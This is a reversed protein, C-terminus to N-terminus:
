PWLRGVNRGPERAGPGPGTTCGADLVTLLTFLFSFIRFVEVSCNWTPPEVTERHPEGVRVAGSEEGEFTLPLASVHHLTGSACFLLGGSAVDWGPWGGGEVARMPADRHVTLVSPALDPCVATVKTQVGACLFLGARSGWPWRRCTQPLPHPACPCSTPCTPLIHPVHAPRPLHTQPLGPEM